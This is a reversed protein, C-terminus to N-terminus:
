PSEGGCGRNFLEELDPDDCAVWKLEPEITLALALLSEAEKLEGLVCAYCALNYTILGTEPHHRFAERLVGRAAEVSVERRLSFAWLIWWNPKDPCRKALSEALVRASRWQDRKQFIEIRLELVSDATRLEPPLSELEDKADEYLGLAIFGSAANLSRHLAFLM